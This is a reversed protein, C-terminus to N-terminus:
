QGARYRCKRGAGGRAGIARVDRLLAETEADRLVSQAAAPTTALCAAVTTM